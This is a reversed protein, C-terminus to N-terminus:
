GRGYDQAPHSPEGAMAVVQRRPRPMAAEFDEGGFRLKFKEADAKESFCFVNWYADDRVVCHGRPCKSLSECFKEIVRFNKSHAAAPLAVQYPWGRDVGAASLEGKQYVVTKKEEVVQSTGIKNEYHFPLFTESETVKTQECIRPDSM